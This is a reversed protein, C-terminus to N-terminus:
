TIVGLGKLSSLVVTRDPLHADIAKEAVYFPYAQSEWSPINRQLPYAEKVLRTCIKDIEHERNPHIEIRIVGARPNEGVKRIRLYCSYLPSGSRKIEFLWTREGVDMGFMVKDDEFNLYRKYHNKVIGVIYDRESVFETPEPITGDKALLGDETYSRVLEQELLDRQNSSREVGIKRLRQYDNEPSELTEVVEFDADKMQRRMRRPLRDLKPVLIKLWTRPGEYMDQNATVTVAGSLHLQIPLFADHRKDEVHGTM